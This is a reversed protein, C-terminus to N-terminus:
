TVDCLFYCSAEAEVSPHMYACTCLFVPVVFVIGRAGDVPDTSAYYDFILQDHHLRGSSPINFGNIKRFRNASVPKKGTVSLGITLPIITM